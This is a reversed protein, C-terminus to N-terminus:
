RKQVPPGFPPSEVSTECKTPECPGQDSVVRERFQALGAPAPEKPSVGYPRYIHLTNASKKAEALWAPTYNRQAYALWVQGNPLIGVYAIRECPDEQPASEESPIPESCGMMQVGPAGEVLGLNMDDVGSIEVPAFWGSLYDSLGENFPEGKKAVIAQIAELRPNWQADAAPAPWAALALRRVGYMRRLCHPDPKKEDCLANRAKIWERQSAQLAAAQDKDLTKRLAGYRETLALDSAALEPALCVTKEVPTGAKTCDFGAKFYRPLDKPVYVIREPVESRNACNGKLVADLKRDIPKAGRHLRLTLSCEGTSRAEDGNRVAVAHFSFGPMGVGGVGEDYYFHVGAADVKDIVLYAYVNPDSPKWEGIWAQTDPEQAWATGALPGICAGLLVAGFLLRRFYFAFRCSLIRAM